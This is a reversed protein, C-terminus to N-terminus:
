SGLHDISLCKLDPTAYYMHACHAGKSIEFDLVFTSGQEIGFEEVYEPPIVIERLDAGNPPVEIDVFKPEPLDLHDVGDFMPYRLRVSLPVPWWNVFSMFMRQANPNYLWRTAHQRSRNPQGMHVSAVGSPLRILIHARTTGYFGRSTAKRDLEIIGIDFGNEVEPLAQGNLIESISMHRNQGAKLSFGSRAMVNGHKDRLNISIEHAGIGTQDQYGVNQNSFIIEQDVGDGYLFPMRLHGTRPVDPLVADILDYIRRKLSKRATQDFADRAQPLLVVGDEFPRATQDTYFCELDLLCASCELGAGTLKLVSEFTPNELKSIVEKLAEETLDACHCIKGKRDVTRTDTM